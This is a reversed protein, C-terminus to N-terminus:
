VIRELERAYTLSHNILDLAPLDSAQKDEQMQFFVKGDKVAWGREQAYQLAQQDSDFLMLKKADPLALHAYARESCGAIEDRVTTLLKEMFYTYSEHPVNRRAELVKNYAGEMLRQELNIAHSVFPSQQEKTSLLELETHFEAIRNQVLLRLLNLGNILPEQQSPPLVGRTDTYYTKLQLFNREFAAEDQLKVSLSVAHELVDRALLLEQQASPTKEFFPPLAPLKTLSLKLGSLLRKASQLDGKNIAAKFQEFQKAAEAAM